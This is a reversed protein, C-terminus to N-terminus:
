YSNRSAILEQSRDSIEQKLERLQSNTDAILQNGIFIKSQEERIHAELSAVLEKSSTKMRMQTYTKLNLSAVLRDSILKALFDEKDRLQCKLQRLVNMRLDELGVRKLAHGVKNLTCHM